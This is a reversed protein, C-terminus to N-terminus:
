IGGIKENLLRGKCGKTRCLFRNGRKVYQGETSMCFKCGLKGVVANEPRGLQLRRREARSLSHDRPAPERHDM